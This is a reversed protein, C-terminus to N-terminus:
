CHCKKDGQNITKPLTFFFTSGEGTKSTVWVKGGYLEVIKKVITLGIGTSEKKDRSVLTQFIEFIKEFYKENIGCGNDAVSFKWFNNEETCGIKILGKPKDIYKVANSLLNQLIQKLRLREALVVPMNPEIVIEINDPIIIEGIIETLLENVDVNHREECVYGIEAYRLIGDIFDSMRRARIILLRLQDTGEKDLKDSYNKILRDAVTGIGRLPSKLDHAIIHAFSRHEQNSTELDRVTKGLDHNLKALTEESKKRYTIDRLIYVFYATDGNDGMVPDASVVIWVDKQSLYLEKEEHKNTQRAIKLPCNDPPLETEYLLKHTTQGLLTGLPKGFFRAASNNAQVIRFENDVLMISDQTANFTEEWQRLANILAQEVREHESELRELGGIHTRLSKIYSLLQERTQQEQHPCSDPAIDTAITQTNKILETEM